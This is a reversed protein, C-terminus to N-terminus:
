WRRCSWRRWAMFWGALLRARVGLGAQGGQGGVQVRARGGLGAQGAKRALAAL